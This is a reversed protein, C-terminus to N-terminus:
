PVVTLSEVEFGSRPHDLYPFADLFSVDAPVANDQLDFIAGAADDATYDPNVLPYTAGAVARLEVTTVDDQVRRGNPFGALDGALIGNIQPSASPPIAVNLRLMDAQTEGTFNQFGDIIGSPIGTHLIALLDARDADLAALNPFVDPYLVPLLTALEPRAVYQGFQADDSPRTRNWLDKMPLPIIVENVLPNGLRSVQTFPGSRTTATEDTFTGKQRHASAWVGIVAEPAMPDTPATGTRTLREIPVQIAITHVNFARLSNRGDAMPLPILHLNQFPRLAGLDFVSGLDVYFGDLRQGGFFRIGDGLDYIAANALDAYNPTSRPGINCPPLLLGEGRVTRNIGRVETVFARQRRNWNESDLAEIPGTNYLFSPRLTETPFTFEFMVDPRGDGNNDINIRYLLDEGFEYFNPGGAPDELPIYNTIITVTGAEDPSTSVFAYTDTSDACPDKSIEPAERHSSM